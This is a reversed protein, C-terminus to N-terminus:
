WFLSQLSDWSNVCKMYFNHVTCLASVLILVFRGRKWFKEESLANWIFGCRRHTHTNTLKIKSKVTVARSCTVERNGLPIPTYTVWSLIIISKNIKVYFWVGQLYQLIQLKDGNQYPVLEFEVDLWLRCLPHQVMFSLVRELRTM